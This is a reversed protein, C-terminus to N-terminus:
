ILKVKDIVKLCNPCIIEEDKSFITIEGCECTLSIEGNSLIMIGPNPLKVWFEELKNAPKRM